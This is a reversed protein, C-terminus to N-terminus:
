GYALHMENAFALRHLRPQRRKFGTDLLNVYPQLRGILRRELKALESATGGFERVKLRADMGRVSRWIRQEPVLHLQYSNVRRRLNNAKGVYCLKKDIYICYLGPCAPWSACDYISVERWRRM